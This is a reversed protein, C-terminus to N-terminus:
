ICVYACTIILGLLGYVYAVPDDTSLSCGFKMM